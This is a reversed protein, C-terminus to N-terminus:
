FSRQMKSRKRTHIWVKARLWQSVGGARLMEYKTLLTLTAQATTDFKHWKM